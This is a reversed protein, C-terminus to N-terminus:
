DDTENGSYCAVECHLNTFLQIPVISEVYPSYMAYAAYYSGYKQTHKRGFGDVADAPKNFAVQILEADLQESRNKGGYVCEYYRHKYELYYIFEKRNAYAALFLAKTEVSGKMM